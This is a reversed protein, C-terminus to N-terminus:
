STVLFLNLFEFILNHLLGSFVLQVAKAGKEYTGVTGDLSTVHAMALERLVMSDEALM